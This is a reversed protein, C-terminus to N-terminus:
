KVCGMAGVRPTFGKDGAPKFDGPLNEEEEEDDAATDRGEGGACKYELGLAGVSSCAAASDPLESACQVGVFGKERGIDGGGACGRGAFWRTEPLTEWAGAVSASRLANGISGEVGSGASSTGVASAGTMTSSSFASGSSGRGAPLLFLLLLACRARAIDGALIAAAAALASNGL